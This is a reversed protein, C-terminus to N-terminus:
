VAVSRVQGPQISVLKASGFAPLLHQRLLDAYFARTAPTLPPWGPTPPHRALRLRIGRVACLLPPRRRGCGSARRGRGDPPLRRRGDRAQVDEDALATWSGEPPRGGFM